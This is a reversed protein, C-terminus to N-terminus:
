KAGMPPGLIESDFRKYLAQMAALDPPGAAPMLKGMEAFFTEMGKGPLINVLLSGPKQSMCGFTHRVNRPIFITDGPQLSFREDDLMFAFEGDLICFFEDFTHHVHLPPGTGITNNTSIFVSLQNETDSSLLKFDIPIQGYAIKEPQRHALASVKFGKKPPTLTTNPNAIALPLSAALTNQMFQRRKM